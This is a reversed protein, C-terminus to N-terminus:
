PQANMHQQMNNSMNTNYPPQVHNNNHYQPRRPQQWQQQAYNQTSWNHPPQMNQQNNPFNGNNYNANARFDRKRKKSFNRSNNQGSNNQPHYNHNPANRYQGNTNMNHNQWGSYNPSDWHNQNGYYTNRNSNNKHNRGNGNGNGNNSSNNGYHHRDEEIVLDQIHTITFVIKERENWSKPMIGHIGKIFVIPHPGNKDNTFKQFHSYKVLADQTVLSQTHDQYVSTVGCTPNFNNGTQARSETLPTEYHDPHTETISVCEPSSNHSTQTRTENLVKQVNQLETQLEHIKTNNEHILQTGARQLMVPLEKQIVTSIQKDKDNLWTNFTTVVREEQEKCKQEIVNQNDVTLNEICTSINRIEAELYTHTQQLKDVDQTVQQVNQPLDHYTQQMSSINNQIASLQADMQQRLQRDHEKLWNELKQDIEKSFQSFSLQTREDLQSIREDLTRIWEDVRSIRKDLNNNLETARQIQSQEQIKFMQEMKMMLLSFPDMVTHTPEVPPLDVTVPTEQPEAETHVQVVTKIRGSHEVASPDSVKINTDQEIDETPDPTEM